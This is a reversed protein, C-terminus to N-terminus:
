QKIEGFILPKKQRIAHTLFRMLARIRPVDKLDPHTLVWIDQHIMLSQTNLRKLGLTDAIYCAGLIMGQGKLAAYHRLVLDEITFGIPADPFPSQAIWTPAAQQYVNTIWQYQSCEKAQLYAESAYYGLYIPFLRHGVLHEDPTNSVRVVVDAESRDLDALSYSTHVHLSINKHQLQFDHLADFILFQAIAPPVSLHINGSLDANVSQERRLDSLILKEIEQASHLLTKGFCTLVFGSQNSEFVDANYKNKLALVRRSVTSHNLTLIEAAGRLTKGRHLALILRYDDWNEM